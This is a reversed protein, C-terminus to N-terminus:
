PQTRPMHQLPRRFHHEFAESIRSRRDSYPAKGENFLGGSGGSFCGLASSKPLLTGATLDLLPPAKETRFDQVIM